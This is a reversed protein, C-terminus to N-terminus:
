LIVAPRTRLLQVIVTKMLLGEIRGRVYKMSIAQILRYNSQSIIYLIYFFYIIHEGSSLFVCICSM